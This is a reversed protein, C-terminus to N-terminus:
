LDNEIQEVQDAYKAEIENEIESIANSQESFPEAVRRKLTPDLFNDIEAELLRAMEGPHLAELANLETAGRGFTEEFKDKRRETDKIPKRPLDYESCQEVSLGLRSSSFTSM